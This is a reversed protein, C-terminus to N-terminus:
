MHIYTRVHAMRMANLLVVRVTVAVSLVIGTCANGFVWGGRPAEEQKEKLARLRELERKLTAVKTANGMLEAKMLKAGLANLQTDTVTEDKLGRDEEVPATPPVRRHESHTNAQRAGHSPPRQEAQLRHTADTNVANPLSVTSTPPTSDPDTQGKGTSVERSTPRRWNVQSAGIPESSLGAFHKSTRQETGDGPRHFSHGKRPQNFSLDQYREDRSTGSRHHERGGEGRGRFQRAPNSLEALARHPNRPDVGAKTLLSHLEEISGWREQAIDEFSRGESESQELARKYSKLLWSRGGDGVVGNGRERGGDRVSGGEQDNTQHEELSTGPLGRGGERWYPNLEKPHAGPKDICMLAEKEEAKKKREVDKVRVSSRHIISQLLGEGEEEEEKKPAGEEPDAAGRQLETVGPLEMWSQRPGAPGPVGSGKTTSPVDREVWVEESSSHESASASSSLKRKKKKSEKKHKKHKQQKKRLSASVGESEGLRLQEAM